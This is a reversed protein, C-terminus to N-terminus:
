SGGLEQDILQFMDDDDVKDLTDADLGGGHRHGSGGTWTELLAELRRAIRVRTDDDPATAALAAELRYLEDFVSDAPDSDPDIETRLFRALADPTPHDFVLTAPLQLGTATNLRNRLEVATLSDFGLDKFPRGSDILEATAHRLTAATHGRVLDLLIDDQEAVPRGALRQALRGDDAAAQAAVARRAAPPRVLGRLLAPVGDTAALARLAALDVRAPILLAENRWTATDYLSLGEQATLPVVGSETMRAVDVDTLQGTMGTSRAWYGWALSMAPRGASRRQDALADLFANGAAYSCQGVAGHVGSTSSFLVFEALDLDRTLEDLNVAVDVKPALVADLRGTTQSVLLGDDLLGASHVVGTLPHEAPIAALVEQLRVRDAADCQALTVRAGLGTLEAVLEAAGPARGGQRSVLVLNRTRGSSVLHAAILSGITGTGGTILVTGEAALARPVTLVIKGVHRAQSMWRFAEPARRLDFARVPLPHLEGRGILGVTTALLRGIGEVDPDAFPQYVVGPYDRAVQDPDRIDRKGLEVFQGGRPLLRLSADVLDGTLSNIVADVGAGGTAALFTEAFDADRSSALHAEDVGLDALAAWKGPSATAYVEAGLYRAVMVAAMGVGGAAAHILVSQGAELGALAALGHYATVFAIPVSAAQEWSWDAPVPVVMRANAVAVQGFSGAFIGTVRDGVALGTVDDAVETVIGAGEGGMGVQGPVMGLGVLVDRFNLGAVRVDLRVHGPGLPEGAAPDPLLALDALSGQGTTDLRWHPAGAPPRLLDSSTARALRPVFCAGDRVAVQPEGAALAAAVLAPLALWSPGSDDIDILLFRDPNEAQASRVLGWVAAQAPATLTDQEAAAVAGRTLLVLRSSSVRTEALWAQLLELTAGADAHAARSLDPSGADPACALVVGPVGFGLDIDRALLSMDPAAQPTVGAERLGPRVGLTDPGLLAWSDSATAAIAGRAAADADLPLPTWDLRFLRDDGAGGSGDLDAAAVPRMVISEAHAVPAGTLDAVTITVSGPGLPAVRVRLASAGAAQVRVRTWAFPLRLGTDQDSVLGAVAHLAGDLLAPHLTFQRAQGQLEAPLAVEAFVEDGRVWAAHLCQFAPGYAYGNRAMNPYFEEVPHASAGPPPWAILDAATPGGADAPALVGSAHRTWPTQPGADAPRGFIEMPRRGSDDGAGVSVQIQVGRSQEDGAMAGGDGAQEGRRARLILPAELTLEALEPCGVEDGARMALEVFATGPLLVTGAVEHDALWPQTALSLRGTLLLGDGAALEVAAGLLPHGASRLGAATVDASGTKELWYREHQFAYTPLGVRPGAAAFAGTWDVAVGSSWAAGLSLYLRTLDGEGRRLTGFSGAPMGLEAAIDQVATTLVPHASVEVFASHGSLLLASVAQAFRVPQRLNRVWYAADLEETDLWGGTVASAFPVQGAAPRIVSLAETLEAEIADVQASHSAYDVDIRRAQVGEAECRAMLEALGDPDGSVVTAAPGNVAAVDVRPSLEAVWDRVRAEPVPVSVMGGHGSLRRAIARSRLVVVRAADALSLRGAVCAAAIEGQSHGVVAAPTVGYSRWVEALSLLVAFMMPQVVDVPERAAGDGSAAGDDGSAAGDGLRLKALLSWGLLPDLAAACESLRAAFVPSTDLLQRAMGAWQWGQGPFVFVVRRGAAPGTTGEVLEAAPAGAALSDLGALAAGRDAAVVVARHEMASRTLALSRGIAPLALEGSAAVFGALREAQARLAPGSRASVVLPVPVAGASGAESPGASSRATGDQTVPAQELIVHANTGSVGFSSVAARRPRGTEPWAVEETLLRVQGSSWDVEPTPRDVHLTRPLVGARMALVMKIVGAVGAAGGAHGMNSKISGLWLPRDAPRDAGYTALLAQAEIPDGLTTGTGHAEVADVDAASLDASALAQRIVREQALDSPATLGNSAGDQNIASGRIIALPEHGNRVADSLRELLLLGAGEAWGTGDAAAAFSKCRGDPALGRQRSFETFVGPQPIVTVGGTLALSCQGLRLEQVAFQLAVLSSSCATDVTVAPGELGYTFAIRGSAVSTMSGTGVYGEVEAPIAGLREVYGAAIVGVFVGTPSGKLTGPDIGAHEFLEWSTELLLRQQPDMALAERPSIGFFGADFDAADYLFGGERVYSKGPSDPDPDFLEALDWGRDTPMGSVVDRGDAVLRWLDAPSSVGGPYRCAMSVIAIPERDATELEQVRQRSEELATTARKLYDLLKEENDAMLAGEALESCM